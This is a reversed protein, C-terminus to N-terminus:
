DDVLDDVVDAPRVATGPILDLIRLARADDDDRPRDRQLLTEIAVLHRDVMSMVRWAHAESDLWAAFPSRLLAVVADADPRSAQFVDLAFLTVGDLAEARELIGFLEDMARPTGVNRFLRVAAMGDDAIKGMAQTVWRDDGAVLQRNSRSLLEVFFADRAFRPALLEFREDADVNAALTMLTLSNVEAAIGLAAPLAEGAGTSLELELWLEAAGNAFFARLEEDELLLRLVGAAHRGLVRASVPLRLADAHELRERPPLARLSAVIRQAVRAAGDDDLPSALAATLARLEDLDRPTSEGSM